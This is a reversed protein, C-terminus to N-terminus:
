HCAPATLFLLMYVFTNIIIIQIYLMYSYVTILHVNETDFVVLWDQTCKLILELVLKTIVGSVNLDWSGLKLIVVSM